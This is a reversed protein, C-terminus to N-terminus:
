GSRKRRLRKGRYKEESELLWTIDCRHSHATATTEAPADKQGIVVNQERKRKKKEWDVQVLWRFFFSKKQLFFFFM